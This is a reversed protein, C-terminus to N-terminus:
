MSNFPFGDCFEGLGEISSDNRIIVSPMSRDSDGTQENNRSVGYCEFLDELREIRVNGNIGEQLSDFLQLVVENELDGMGIDTLGKKFNSASVSGDEHYFTDKVTKHITLMYKAIVEMYRKQTEESENNVLHPNDIPQSYKKIFQMYPIDLLNNSYSYFLINLYHKIDSTLPIGLTKLISLLQESSLLGTKDTDCWECVSKFKVSQLSIMHFFQTDLEEEQEKTLLKWNDTFRLLREGVQKLTAATKESNLLLVALKEAQEPLNIGIPENELIQILKEKNINQKQNFNKGFLKYLLDKKLIKLVQMKVSIHRFCALMEDNKPSSQLSSLTKDFTRFIARSHATRRTSSRKKRNERFGKM